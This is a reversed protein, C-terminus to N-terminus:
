GIHRLGSLLGDRGYSYHVALAGSRAEVIRGGSYFLDIRGGFPDEIASVLDGDLRYQVAAGDALVMGTFRGAPDFSFECGSKEILRFSADSLLLLGRFRSATAPAPVYAAVGLRESFSLRFQEGSQEDILDLRQPIRANLYPIWEVDPVEIRYPTYVDSGRGFAGVRHGASCAGRLLCAGPRGGNWLAMDATLGRGEGPSFRESAIVTVPRDPLACVGDAPVAVTSVPDVRDPDGPDAASRFSGAAALAALGPADRYTEPLSMDIRLDVGGYIETQPLWDSPRRLTPVSVPTEEALLLDRHELLFGQLPVRNQKLYKALAVCRAYEFLEQYVPEAQEFLAYNRTWFEAFALDAPEAPSGKGELFMYETKLTMRGSDFLIVNGSRLFRMQEPVFWFRRVAGLHDVGMERQIADVCRFGPVDPRALGIACKKMLYDADVLVRGLGTNEVQGIYRVVQEDCAACVPDISVGPDKDGFYVAWLATLFRSLDIQQVHVDEGDVILSFDGMGISVSSVGGDDVGSISGAASLLVGGISPPRPVRNPIRPLPPAIRPAPGPMRPAAAPRRPAPLPVPAPMEPPPPPVPIPFPAAMPPPPPGGPGDGGDHGGHPPEDRATVGEAEKRAQIVIATTAGLEACRRLVHEDDTERGGDVTVVGRERLANKVARYYDSEPDGFLVVRREGDDKAALREETERAVADPSTENEVLDLVDVARAGDSVVRWRLASDGFQPGTSRAGESGRGAPEGKGPGRRIRLAATTPPESKAWGGHASDWYLGRARATTGVAQRLGDLRLRRLSRITGARQILGLHTDIRTLEERIAAPVTQRAFDTAGAWAEELARRAAIRRPTWVGGEADTLGVSGAQEPEGGSSSSYELAAARLRSGIERDKEALDPRMNYLEQVQVENAEAELIQMLLFSRAEKILYLKRRTLDFITGANDAKDAAGVLRPLLLALQNWRDTWYASTEGPHGSTCVDLARDLEEWVACLERDSLRALRDRLGSAEGGDRLLEALTASDDGGTLTPDITRIYEDWDTILGDPGPSASAAPVLSGSQLALLFWPLLVLLPGRLGSPNGSSGGRGFVREFLIGSTAGAGITGIMQIIGSLHGSRLLVGALAAGLIFGAFYLLDRKTM